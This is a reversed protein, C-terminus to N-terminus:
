EFIWGQYYWLIINLCLIFIFFIFLYIFFSPLLFFFNFLSFLWSVMVSRPERIGGVGGEEEDWNSIEVTKFESRKQFGSRPGQKYDTEFSHETPLKKKKKKQNIPTQKSPFPFHFSFHPKHTDTDTHTKKRSSPFRPMSVNSITPHMFSYFIELWKDIHNQKTARFICFSLFNPKKGEFNWFGFITKSVM